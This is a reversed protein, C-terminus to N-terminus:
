GMGNSTGMGDSTGVGDLGGNISSSESQPNSTGVEESSGGAAPATTNSSSEDDSVPAAGPAGNGASGQSPAPTGVDGGCSVGAAAAGALAVVSCWQVKMNM